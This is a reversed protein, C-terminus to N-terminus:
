KLIIDKKFENGKLYDKVSMKRKNPFQIETLVIYGNKCSIKIGDESVDVVQGLKYDNYEEIIHMNHVKINEGEYEFFSGPWPKFGRMKNYINKPNNTFDIKGMKKKIMGYYSAKAEDQVTRNSYFIDFNSLTKILTEAGLIKLRDHLQGADEEEFIKTKAINLVDGTDLGEGILMISVGSEAEGNVIAWNIPAAGRYKPLVSSHVNIIRGNMYEILKDGIIQGYAVVIIYDPNIEKVRNMFEETNVSSPTIVPLSLEEAKLKVPTPLLKGRSRKKDKGTVVLSIEYNDTEYIKDLSEVAFEPTGMFIIKKM